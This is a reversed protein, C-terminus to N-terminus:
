LFLFNFRTKQLIDCKQNLLFYEYCIIARIKFGNNTYTYASSIKYSKGKKNQYKSCMNLPSPLYLTPSLGWIFFRCGDGENLFYSVYLNLYFNKLMFVVIESILNFDLNSYGPMYNFSICSDMLYSHQLSRFM